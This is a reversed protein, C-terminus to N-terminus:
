RAPPWRAPRASTVAPPAPPTARRGHEGDAVALILVAELGERFISSPRTRSSPRTTPRARASPRSPRPSRPTSRRRADRRDGGADRARAISSRSARAPRGRRVLLLGRGEPVPRAGPRAPAARARVRLVRLGRPPGARGHRVVGAKVARRSGTSRVGQHRRLRGHRRRRAVGGPLAEERRRAHRRGHAGIDDPDAVTAAARRARSTAQRAADVSARSAARTAAADRRSSCARWTPSPARRATASPSRRRSRSRRADRPRREVGRGYEVPVLALFRQLQGARRVARDPALPAARFGCCRTM